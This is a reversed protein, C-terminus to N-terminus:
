KDKFTNNQAKFESPTSGTKAKFLRSFYYVSHFGLEDSIKKIQKDSSLLLEKAKLVRLDTHYKLPSIGVYKKFMKRFYAYGVNCDSAIQHLDVNTSVNQRMTFCAQKIIKEIRNGSYGKQKQFAIIYGILKMIMGAAVQQYGPNETKVIDFIKIYSDIFEERNGIDLIPKELSLLNNQFIAHTINGNFGIYNETWGTEVKPKYRHWLGPKIIFLSGKRVPFVGAQTELIGSGDTIYNIQYETLVRGKVWSFFYDNPHAPNPYPSHPLVKKSGAVNIYLGWSEDFESITLYKFFDQM